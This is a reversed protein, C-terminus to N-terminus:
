DKESHQRPAGVTNLPGREAANGVTDSVELL